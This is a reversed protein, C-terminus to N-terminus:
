AAPQRYRRLADVSFLVLALWIFAFAVQQVPGFPEHFLFVALLLAVTPALYQLFGLVTMAVRRAAYGFLVLPISTVVGGVVMLVDLHRAEHLFVGTGQQESWLLWGLSPLLLV